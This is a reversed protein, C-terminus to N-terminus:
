LANNNIKAAIYDYLSIGKIDEVSVIYEPRINNKTYIGFEEDIDKYFSVNQLNTTDITILSYEKNTLENFQSVLRRMEYKPTNNYFFHIRPDYSFLKNKMKPVFGIRKIKEVVNRPCIHYIKDGIINSSIKITNQVNPSFIFYQRDTGDNYVDGYMEKSYFYGALQIDNVINKFINSATDIKENNPIVYLEIDDYKVEEIDAVNLRRKGYNIKIYIDYKKTLKYLYNRIKDFPYTTLTEDLVDKLSKSIGNIINNYLKNNKM